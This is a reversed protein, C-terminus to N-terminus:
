INHTSNMILTNQRIPTLMLKQSDTVFKQFVSSFSEPGFGLLWGDKILSLTGKWFEVRINENGSNLYHHIGFLGLVCAMVLFVTRMKLSLYSCFVFFLLSIIALFSAQLRFVSVYVSISGLIAILLLKIDKQILEKSSVVISPFFKNNTSIVLEPKGDLWFITEGFTCLYM